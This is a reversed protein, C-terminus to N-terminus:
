PFKPSHHICSRCDLLSAHRIANHLAVKQGHGPKRNYLPLDTASLVICGRLDPGSQAEDTMQLMSQHRRIQRAPWCISLSCCPNKNWMRIRVYQATVSRAEIFNIVNEADIITDIQIFCSGAFHVFALSGKERQAMIKFGGTAYRANSLIKRMM